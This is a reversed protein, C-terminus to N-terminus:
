IIFCSSRKSSVHTSLKSEKDRLNELFSIVNDTSYDTQIEVRALDNDDNEDETLDHLKWLKVDKFYKRKILASRIAFDDFLAKSFFPNGPPSYKWIFAILELFEIRKIDSDLSDLYLRVICGYAIETAYESNKTPTLGSLGIARGAEYHVTFPYGHKALLANQLGFVFTRGNGDELPHLGHMTQIFCTIRELDTLVEEQYAKRTNDCKKGQKNTMSDHKFELNKDSGYIADGDGDDDSSNELIYYKNNSFQKRKELIYYEYIHSGRKYLFNIMVCIAKKLYDGRINISIYDANNYSVPTFENLFRLDIKRNHLRSGGNNNFADLELLHLKEKCSLYEVLLKDTDKLMEIFKSFTTRINTRVLKPCTNKALDHVKQLAILLYKFHPNFDKNNCLKDIVKKSEEIEGILKSVRKKNYSNENKLRMLVLQIKSNVDDFETFLDDTQKEDLNYKTKYEKLYERKCKIGQETLKKKAWYQRLPNSYNLDDGSIRNLAVIFNDIQLKGESTPEICTGFKEVILKRLGKQTTKFDKIVRELIDLTFERNSNILYQKFRDTVLLAEMLYKRHDQNNYLDSIYSTQLPQSQKIGELIPSIDALSYIISSPIKKMAINQYCKLTSLKISLLM